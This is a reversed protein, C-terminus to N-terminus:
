SRGVERYIELYREAMREVRYEEPLDTAPVRGALAEALADAFARPDRPPVLRGGGARRLVEPVGGVATCVIPRRAATAELLVLPMGESRSSLCFVDAAALVSAADRVFGPLVVRAESGLHAAESLLEARLPGEGAIVCVVDPPMLAHARLLMVHDKVATLAGLTAVVRSGSAIGLRRRAEERQPLRSWPKEDIGNPIVRIKGAGFRLREALARATGDSVVVVRRSLAQAVALKIWFRGGRKSAMAVDGHETAVCPVGSITAGISGYFGADLLHTHVVRISERRLFGRFEAIWRLDASGATPLVTVPWGRARAEGSLWGDNMVVLRQSGGSRGLAAMLSLIVSEAGGPDRSDTVHCIPGSEDPDGM